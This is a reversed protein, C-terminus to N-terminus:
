SIELLGSSTAFSDTEIEMNNLLTLFLNSLQEIKQPNQGHHSLNHHEAPVGPIQPVVGHDQIVVTVIRSSDTQLILPILNMLSRTRGIM